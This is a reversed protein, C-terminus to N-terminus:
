SGKKNYNDKNRKHEGLSMLSKAQRMRITIIMMLNKRLMVKAVTECLEDQIGYIM